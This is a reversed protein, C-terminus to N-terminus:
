TPKVFYNSIKPSIPPREVSSIQSRPTRVPTRRPGKFLPSGPLNLLPTSAGRPSLTIIPSGTIRTPYPPHRFAGTIGNGIDKLPFRLPPVTPQPQQINTAAANSYSMGPQPQPATSSSPIPGIVSTTTITSALTSTTNIPAVSHAGTLHVSAPAASAATLPISVSTVPASGVVTLASCVPNVSVSSAATLVPAGVSSVNTPPPQQPHSPPPPAQSTLLPATHTRQRNQPIQTNRQPLDDIKNFFDAWDRGYRLTHRGGNKDEANVKGNWAWTRTVNAHDRM